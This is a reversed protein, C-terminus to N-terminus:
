TLRGRIVATGLLGDEGGLPPNLRVDLTATDVVRTLLLGVPRRVHRPLLLHLAGRDDGALVPSYRDLRIVVSRTDDITVFGRSRGHEIPDPRVMELRRIMPLAVAFQEQPGSEFLLVTQTEGAEVASVPAIPRPEASAGAHRAVGEVDLILAVRGDGM